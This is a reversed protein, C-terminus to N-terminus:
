LGLEPLYIAPQAKEVGQPRPPTGASLGPGCLPSTHMLAHMYLLTFIRQLAEGTQSRNAKSGQLPLPKEAGQVAVFPQTYVTSFRVFWAM